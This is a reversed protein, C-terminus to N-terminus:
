AFGRRIAIVTAAIPGAALTLTVIAAPHQLAVWVIVGATLVATIEVAVVAMLGALVIAMAIWESRQWARAIM